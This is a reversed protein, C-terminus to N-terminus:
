DILESLHVGQLLKIEDDRKRIEDEEHTCCAVISSHHAHFLTAM